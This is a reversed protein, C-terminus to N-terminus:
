DSYGVAKVRYTEPKDAVNYIKATFLAGAAPDLDNGAIM